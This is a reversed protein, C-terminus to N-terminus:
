VGGGEEGREVTTQAKEEVRAQLTIDTGSIIETIM